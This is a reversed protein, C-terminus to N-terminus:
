EQAAAQAPYRTLVNDWTETLNTLRRLLEPVENTPVRVQLGM